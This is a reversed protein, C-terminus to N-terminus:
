NLNKFCFRSACYVLSLANENLVRENSHKKLKVTQRLKLSQGFKALYIGVGTLVCDTFHRYEATLLYNQGNSYLEKTLKANSKNTRLADNYNRVEHHTVIKTRFIPQSVKGQKEPRFAFRKWPKFKSLNLSIANEYSGKQSYWTTNGFSRSQQLVEHLVPLAIFTQM